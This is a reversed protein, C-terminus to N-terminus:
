KKKTQRRSGRAPTSHSGRNSRRQNSRTSVPEPTNAESKRASKRRTTVGDEPEPTSAVSSETVAPSAERDRKVRTRKSARTPKDTTPTSERTTDQRSEMMQDYDDAPLSFERQEDVEDEEEEEDERGEADLEDLENMAYYQNLRDWIDQISWNTNCAENFQRQICLIRFHKHVGVPKFTSIANFLAIEKAANWEGDDQDASATMAPAPPLSSEWADEHDTM